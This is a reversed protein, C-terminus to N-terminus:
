FTMRAQNGRFTIIRACPSVATMLRLAPAGAHWVLHLYTVQEQFLQVGWPRGMLFRNWEFGGRTSASALLDVDLEHDQGGNDRHQHLMDMLM